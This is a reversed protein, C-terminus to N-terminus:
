QAQSAQAQVGGVGELPESLSALAESGASRLSCFGRVLAEVLGRRQVHGWGQDAKVATCDTTSVAKEPCDLVM